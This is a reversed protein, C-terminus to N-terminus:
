ELARPSTGGSSADGTTSGTPTATPETIPKAKYKWGEPSMLLTKVEGKVGYVLPKGNYIVDLTGANGVILEVSAANVTREQGPDLTGGYIKAGDAILRIWTTEKARITLAFKGATPTATAVATQPEAVKEAEPQTQPPPIVESQVAPQPAPAPKTEVPAAPTTQATEVPASSFNRWGFYSICAVIVLAAFALWGRSMGDNQAPMMPKHKLSERLASIQGETNISLSSNQAPASEVPENSSLSSVMNIQKEIEDPDWGLYKSYQRVFARYFFEGPLSTQDDAEIAQLYRLGIRTDEAIKEIGLKQRERELRLKAGLSKM